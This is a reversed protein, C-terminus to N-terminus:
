ARSYGRYRGLLLGFSRATVAASALTWAFACWFSVLVGAMALFLAAM